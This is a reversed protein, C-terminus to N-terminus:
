RGVNAKTIPGFYGIAPSIANKQQYAILAQKTQNGFYGTAGAPISYGQLMLFEQLSKVDEGSLGTELDRTYISPSTNNSPSTPKININPANYQKQLTQAQETKGIDILNKIRRVM